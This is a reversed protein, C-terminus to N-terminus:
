FFLNFFSIFWGYVSSILFGIANSAFLIIAILIFQGYREYQFIFNPSIRVFINKFVHYGDLPPIPILNFIALGINVFVIQQVITLAIENRVGAAFLAFLLGTFLFGLILNVACGALSVINDDRRLKRFNRPNVPVPKAWGFGVLLIMISGILDLHKFPDLTLRGLNKATPDGMKYAALAHAWEHFSLAILMAPINYLIGIFFSTIGGNFLSFLM